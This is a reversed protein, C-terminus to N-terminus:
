KKINIYFIIWSVAMILLIFGYMFYNLSKISEDAQRQFTLGNYIMDTNAKLMNLYTNAVSNEDGLSDSYLPGALNIKADSSIQEFLKPNITSEVFISPLKFTKILSTIRKMDSTQIDSETSIGQMAHITIGYANGYYRFADHTTILIRQGQPISNIKNKIYTDIDELEDVYRSYNAKFISSYQPFNQVLANYINEAYILGNQASMWAHPDFSDPHDESTIAEMRETLTYIPAKSGSNFIIKAIWEEFKLGNIFILDGKRIKDVDSPVAEYIHPDGGINVISVVDSKDGTINKIMDAFISTTTVINIKKDNIVQSPLAKKSLLIFVLFIILTTYKGRNILACYDM